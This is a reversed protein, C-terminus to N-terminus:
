RNRVCRGAIWRGHPGRHRPVRHFGRGCGEAVPVISAATVAPATGPQVPAAQGPVAAGLIGALCFVVIATYRM